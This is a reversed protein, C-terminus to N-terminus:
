KRRARQHRRSSPSKAGSELKFVHALKRGGEANLTAFRGSTLHETLEILGPLILTSGDDAPNDLFTWGQRMWPWLGGVFGEVAPTENWTWDSRQETKTRPERRPVAPVKAWLLGNRLEGKIQALLAIDYPIPQHHEVYHYAMRRISEVDAISDYLYASIVGRVPDAHKGQRLEVALDTKADARLAGNEMQAIADETLKAVDPNTYIERYILASVGREDRLVSGIFRPLSTVAAFLGDEFEILVPTPAEIPSGGRRGIRWWDSEGHIEAIVEKTTWVAVVPQGHTAFGSETEFHNPRSQSRVEKLLRQARREGDRAVEVAEEEGLSAPARMGLMLEPAPWKPFLPPNLQQTELDFYIDDGEPFTFSVVPDLMQKYRKAVKPVESKLYTGLSNSTIKKKRVASFASPKTGWLGELLVGSFLCRDNEPNTGPVMYTATGDQAAIFKDVELMTQSQSPGRGLVGDPTLDASDIDPPLLRCADGFIALQKVGYLRLRRKLVEIAVGRLDKHWDSLLWLGEEAERILGHGAFYLVLRHVPSNGPKLMADLEDRLRAVTVPADEDTLLSAQYGLATAWEHFAHAGNVAAPLYPLPQADGVGISLALMRREQPM